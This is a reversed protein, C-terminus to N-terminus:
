RWEEPNLSLCGDLTPARISVDVSTKPASENDHDALLALLNSQRSDRTVSEPARTLWEPVKAFERTNCTVM